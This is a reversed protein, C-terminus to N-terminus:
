AAAKIRSLCMRDPCPLAMRYRLGSILSANVTGGSTTYEGITGANWNAVFLNSGSVALGVPASLGSVLSANM